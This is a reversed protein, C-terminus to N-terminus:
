ARHNSLPHGVIITPQEVQRVPHVENSSDSGSEGVSNSHSRLPPLSAFSADGGISSNSKSMMIGEREEFRESITTIQIGREAASLADVASRADVASNARRATFKEFVSPKKEGSSSPSFASHRPGHGTSTTARIGSGTHHDAAYIVNSIATRANLTSLLSNVYLKALPLNFVLHLTTPSALFLILDIIAFVTTLAGTQITTRILKTILDDTAQFGTRSKSLTRILSFTIVIDALAACLLWVIVVSQFKQFEAFHLVISVGITTGIAGLLSAASLVAIIAPWVWSKTLRYVRWAFFLQCSFAIISTMVPDTTFSWNSASAYHLDGFHTILYDYIFHLDFIANLTDAVFLFGVFLKLISRDSRFNAYYLYFQLCSFGYLWVNLMVGVLICGISLDLASSGAM